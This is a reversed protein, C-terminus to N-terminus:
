DIAAQLTKLPTRPTAPLDVHRMAMMTPLLLLEGLRGYATPWRLDLTGVISLSMGVRRTADTPGFGNNFSWSACYHEREAEAREM